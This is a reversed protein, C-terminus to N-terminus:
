NSNSNKLDHVEKKFNEIQKEKEIIIQNSTVQDNKLSENEKQSEELLLRVETLETVLRTTAEDVQAKCKDSTEVVKILKAIERIVKNYTKKSDDPFNESIYRVLEVLEGENKVVIRVSTEDVVEFCINIQKGEFFEVDAVEFINEYYRKNNRAM